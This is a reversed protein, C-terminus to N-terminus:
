KSITLFLADKWIACNDSHLPIGGRLDTEENELHEHNKKKKIQFMQPQSRAWYLVSATYDHLNSHFKGGQVHRPYMNRSGWCQLHPLPFIPPNQFSMLLCAQVMHCAELKTLSRTKLSYLLSNRQSQVRGFVFHFTETLQILLSHLTQSFCAQM